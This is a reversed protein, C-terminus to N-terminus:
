EHTTKKTQKQQRIKRIIVIIIIIILIIIFWCGLKKGAKAVENEGDSHGNGELLISSDKEINQIEEDSVKTLEALLASRDNSGFADCTSLLLLKDAYGSFDSNENFARKKFMEIIEANHDNRYTLLNYADDNYANMLSFYLVKVKYLGDATYLIGSLHNDFYRKEEYRKIDSYMQGTTMNHGYTITYDDKFDRSNRYDIFISGGAAYNGNYNVNLYNMNDKSYLVPYDISTDFIRIWGDIDPNVEKLPLISFGDEVKPRLEIIEDGLRSDDYIRYSDYIAYVGILMLLLFFVIMVFNILKDVIKISKKLVEEKTIKKNM